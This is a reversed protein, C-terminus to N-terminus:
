STERPSCTSHSKRCALFRVIFLFLFFEKVNKKKKEKKQCVSVFRVHSCFIMKAKWEQLRTPKCGIKSWVTYDQDTRYDPIKNM